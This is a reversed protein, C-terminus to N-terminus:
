ALLEALWAVWHGVKLYDKSVALMAVKSVVMKEDLWCVLYAVWRFGTSVVLREVKM